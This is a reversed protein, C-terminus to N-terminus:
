GAWEDNVVATFARVVDRHRGERIATIPTDEDLIPNAGIFWARAVHVNEAESIAKMARYTMRLNMEFKTNIPSSDAKAWRTPAGRDKAGAAAAVMTPGLAANLRQVLVHIDLRTTEAYTAQIIDTKM